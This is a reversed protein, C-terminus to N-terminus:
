QEPEESLSKAPLKEPIKEAIWSILLDAIQDSNREAMMLHGNGHLGHDSLRLYDTSVGHAKLHEAVLPLSGAMWSAEAAVVAVPFGGLGPLRRPQGDALAAPHTVPPDYTLPAATLGWDLRGLPHSLFPPSLPEVAIIGRVLAPRADAMLWGCPGGQSHTLLISPGVQDLLAAGADRALAQMTHLDTHMPGSGAMFQRLSESTAPLGDDPWQSHLAAGPWTGLSRAATFRPAIDEYSPLPTMAGLAEPHWPARGHGPRDMVYVAFGAQLFRAAWGPRGYPTFLFDTGQGGGGHVMLVPLAHRQVKPIMCLVYAQGAEITGGDPRQRQQGGVFCGRCAALEPWPASAAQRLAQPSLPHPLTPM